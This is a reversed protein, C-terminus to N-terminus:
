CFDSIASGRKAGTDLAEQSPGRQRNENNGVLVWVEEICVKDRSGILQRRYTQEKGPRMSAPLSIM